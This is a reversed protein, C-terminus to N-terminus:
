EMPDGAADRLLIRKTVSLPYGDITAILTPSVDGPDQQNRTYTFILQNSSTGTLSSVSTTSEQGEISVKGNGATIALTMGWGPAATYIPNGYQDKVAVTVTTSLEAWALDEDAITMSLTTPIPGAWTKNIDSQKIATMGGYILIRGCELHGSPIAPYFIM